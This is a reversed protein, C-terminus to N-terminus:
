RKAEADEAAQDVLTVVANPQSAYVAHSGPVEVVKAGIRKSIFQQPAAPACNRAAFRMRLYPILALHLSGDAAM